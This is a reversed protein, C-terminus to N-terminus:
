EKKLGKVTREFEELNINPNLIYVSEYYKINKNEM